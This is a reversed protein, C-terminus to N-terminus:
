NLLYIIMSIIKKLLRLERALLPHATIISHSILFPMLSSFTYQYYKLLLHMLSSYNIENIILLQM